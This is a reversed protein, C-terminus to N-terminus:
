KLFKSTTNDALENSLYESCRQTVGSSRYWRPRELDGSADLNPTPHVAGEIDADVL